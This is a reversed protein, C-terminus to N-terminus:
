RPAGLLELTGAGDGDLAIMGELPGAAERLDAVIAGNLHVALRAGYACVALRNEQGEHWPGDFAADRVDVLWSGATSFVGPGRREPEGEFPAEQAVRFRVRADRERLAVRCAFDDVREGPQAARWARTGLDWLRLGRWRVRTDSGGHVQLGIFGETALPDMWDAAPVGDVWTRVWPGLCEIRYHNWEGHQFASRAADDDKLDDLWGRGGEEYLGGSWARMSPDIEIQYGVVRGADGLRSRVQIGSNGRLETKVDLELVFDGFVRETVLFSHSADSGSQGLIEDESPTYVANGVQSWGDLTGPALLRVEEGPREDLARLELSRFWVEDGHDQLGIFGRAQRGFGAVDRFKSDAVRANWDDSGPECAVVRVGNLWHEIRGGAVVIRARNFAGVPQTRAGQPAHVDYLAGSVHEPGSGDPRRGDDLVQYEPGLMSAPREVPQVLYKVGGNAGAAVKWEFELEFAGLEGDTVIDGGGGGAIVRLCGDSVVWGKEPFAEAGHGHWGRTTAGDFLLRWGAERELATLRNPAAAGDTVRGTAAWEVGRVVLNRFQPDAHSARTAEVGRWVHGLPTHFVRGAGYSAVVVMPEGAGTGGTDTSSHAWALVRQEVGHVNVLRHYLEDPHAQLDPLARTIPHDRDTITLDFAHFRGHGTGERWLLGVLEEYEVWGPFANDAAHIVAVGAGARVRALFAREAAEGWRPGNYDLVFAGQRALAGADALAKAPEATVTVDFRGSEALMRELSPTTWEWDHNNAGSVILVPIRTEQAATVSALPPVLAFLACPLPTM